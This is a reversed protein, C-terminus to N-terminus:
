MSESYAFLVVRSYFARTYGTRSAFGRKDCAPGEIGTTFLKDATCPIAISPLLQDKKLSRAPADEALCHDPILLAIALLSLYRMM